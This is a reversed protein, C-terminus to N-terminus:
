QVKMMRLVKSAEDIHEQVKMMQLMDVDTYITGLSSM